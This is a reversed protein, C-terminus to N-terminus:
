KLSAPLEVPFSVPFLKVHTQWQASIQFFRVGRWLVGDISVEMAAEKKGGIGSTTCVIRTVGSVVRSQSSFAVGSAESPKQKNRRGLKHLVKDKKREKVFLMSLLNSMPERVISLTRVSAKMSFKSGVNASNSHGVDNPSIYNCPATSSSPFPYGLSTWYEIQLERGDSTISPSNAFLKNSYNQQPPSNKDVFLEETVAERERSLEVLTPIAPFSQSHQASPKASSASSNTLTPPTAPSPSDEMQRQHEEVVRGIYHLSSFTPDSVYSSTSPHDSCISCGTLLEALFPVFAQSRSQSENSNVANSQDSPKSLQLMVEGIHLNTDRQTHQEKTISALCNRLENHEAIGANNPSEKFATSANNLIKWIAESYGGFGAVQSLLRGVATHPPLVLSFRLYNLWDEKCAKNQLLVVYSKLVNALLIDGGLVGITITPPSVSNNNCFNQIRWIIAQMLARVTISSPCDLLCIPDLLKNNVKSIWPLDVSSCIWIHEPIILTSPLSCFRSLLEEMSENGKITETSFLSNATDSHKLLNRMFQQNSPISNKRTDSEATEDQRILREEASSVIESDASLEDSLFLGEETQLDIIPPMIDSKSGFFPRIKPRPNSVISLKDDEIEPGSDSINELEEFIEQLELETPQVISGSTHPGEEEEAMVEDPKFKRLLAIVRQKINRQKLFKKRRRGLYETTGHDDTTTRPTFEMDSESDDASSFEEPEEESLVMPEKENITTVIRQRGSTGCPEGPLEAPKTYCNSVEIKGAHLERMSHRVKQQICTTDWIVVEKSGGFQLVEDLNLHGMALTKFGPIQRNKYRKRRQILIQLINPKRKIFHCYQIIFSIDLPIDLKLPPVNLDNTRLTRKNNQLRIAITFPTNETIALSKTLRLRTFVMSLVRQVAIPSSTRDVDWNAYFRMPLVNVSPPHKAPHM